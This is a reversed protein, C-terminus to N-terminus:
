EAGAPVGGTVVETVVPESRVRTGDLRIVRALYGVSLKFSEDISDFIRLLAEHDIDQPVVQVSENPAWQATPHLQPGSLIPTEELCQMARGLVLLEHEVNDAWATLLFHLDIPLHARGDFAGVGSWAARMTKNAEVRYLFISVAPPVIPATAGPASFDDTQVLVARSRKGPVPEAADFCANLVREISKGTAAICRYDAM